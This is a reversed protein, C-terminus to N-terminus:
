PGLRIAPDPDFTTGLCALHKGNPSVIREPRGSDRSPEWRRRHRSSSLFRNPIDNAVIACLFGRARARLRPECNGERESTSWCRTPKRDATRALSAAEPASPWLIWATEIALLAVYVDSHGALRRVQPMAPQAATVCAKLAHLASQIVRRNEHERAADLIRITDPVAETTGLQRVASLLKDVHNQGDRDIEAPVAALQELLGPEFKHRYDRSQGLTQALMSAEGGDALAAAIGPVARPDGLRALALLMMRYPDQVKREPDCWAAPGLALVQSALADAAPAALDYTDQLALAAM